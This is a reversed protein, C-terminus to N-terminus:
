SHNAFCIDFASSLYKGKKNKYNLHLDGSSTCLGLGFILLQEKVFTLISNRRFRSIWIFYAFIIIVEFIVQNTKFKGRSHYNSKQLTEKAMGM